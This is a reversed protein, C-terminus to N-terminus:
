PGGGLETWTIGAGLMGAILVVADAVTLELGPGASALVPGGLVGAGHGGLYLDALGLAWATGLAAAAGVVLSVLVRFLPSRRAM